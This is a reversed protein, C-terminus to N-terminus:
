ATIGMSQLGQWLLRLALLTVVVRFAQKFWEGPIRNLLKLGMWTGFAGSAIM